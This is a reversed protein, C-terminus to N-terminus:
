EGAPILGMAALMAPGDDGTVAIIQTPTATPPDPNFVLAAQAANAAEMDIIDTTDWAPRHLPLQAAAIWEASAEFSAAAYLNGAADRWNLGRYTEGDAASFALCMALNNAAHVLAEPAASTVRM